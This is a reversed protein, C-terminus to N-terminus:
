FLGNVSFAESIELEKKPDQKSIYAEAEERSWFRAVEKGYKGGLNLDYVVFYIPSTKIM